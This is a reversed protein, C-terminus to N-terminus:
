PRALWKTMLERGHAEFGSRRYLARASERREEVELHLARVGTERCYAEAIELAERGLGVGRATDEIYLEDLFADRGGYELSFGLTVALYGVVRGERPAVWLRGLSADRTLRLIVDRASAGVFSYGDEAYYERMLALVGDADGPTAPRFRSTAPM